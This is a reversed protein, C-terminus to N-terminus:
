HCGCGSGCCSDNGGGVQGSIVEDPTAERINLLSVSFLLDKGALPHNYDVTVTEDNFDKVIVQVTNGDDSQGYLAMGKELEIGTFQEKPIDSVADPNYEGYALAADVKIDAKDGAAYEKLQSELGPIIHGKGTIFELPAQGVNSDLIETGGAERLEYEISIVQNDSIAM